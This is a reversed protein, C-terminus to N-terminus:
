WSSLINWTMLLHPEKNCHILEDEHKNTLQKCNNNLESENGNDCHDNNNNNINGVALAELLRKDEEDCACTEGESNLICIVESM